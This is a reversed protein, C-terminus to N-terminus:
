CAGREHQSRDWEFLYNRLEFSEGGPRVPTGRRIRFALSQNIEYNKISGFASSFSKWYFIRSLGLFLEARYFILGSRHYPFHEDDDGTAAWGFLTRRKLFTFLEFSFDAVANPLRLM